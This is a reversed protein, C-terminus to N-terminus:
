LVLLQKFKCAGVTVHLRASEKVQHFWGGKASQGGPHHAKTRQLHLNFKEWNAAAARCIIGLSRLHGALIYGTTEQTQKFGLSATPADVNVADVFSFM